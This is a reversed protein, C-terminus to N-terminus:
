HLLLFTKCQKERLYLVVPLGHSSLFLSNAEELLLPGKQSDFSSHDVKFYVCVVFISKAPVCMCVCVCVYIYTHIKGIIYV